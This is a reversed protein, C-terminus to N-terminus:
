AFKWILLARGGEIATSLSGNARISTSTGAASSDMEVYDAPGVVPVHYRASLCGIRQLKLSHILLDASLQAVNALSM